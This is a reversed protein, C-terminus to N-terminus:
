NGREGEVFPCLKKFAVWHETPIGLNDYNEPSTTRHL